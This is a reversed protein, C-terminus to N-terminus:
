KVPSYDTALFFESKVGGKATLSGGGDKESATRAEVWAPDKGFASFSAKAADQTAHALFYVLTRDAEPQDKDRNWYIVNTMGHKSFLAVTHNRFRANLRELNGESATYTRLEFVREGGVKLASFLPSYDTTHMFFNEAKQVLKGNKESAEKVALWEPDAGFSKWATERAERSPYSLVFLIKGEPNEKPVWFGEPTMGHKKVLAIAHNKMRAHVDPLRDGATYVRMEYCRGDGALSSVAMLGTVALATVWRTLVHRLM